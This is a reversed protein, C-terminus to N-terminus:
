HSKSDWIGEPYNRAEQTGLRYESNPCDFRKDQFSLMKIQIQSVYM